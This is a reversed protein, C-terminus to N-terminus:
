APYAALLLHAQLLRLDGFSAASGSPDSHKGGYRAKWHLITLVYAYLFCALILLVGAILCLEAWPKLNNLTLAVLLLPIAVISLTALHMLIKFKNAFPHMRPRFCLAAVGPWHDGSRWM